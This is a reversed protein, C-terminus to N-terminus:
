EVVGVSFERYGLWRVARASLVTSAMCHAAGSPPVLDLDELAFFLAALDRESARASARSEKRARPRALAARPASPAISSPSM